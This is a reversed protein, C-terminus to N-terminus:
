GLHAKPTVTLRAGPVVQQGIPKDDELYMSTQDDRLAWPTNQPLSMQVALAQAVVGAPLSAQVGNVTFADDMTVNSVEFSLTETGVGGSVAEIADERM